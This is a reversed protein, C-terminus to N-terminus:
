DLEKLIKYLRSFLTGTFISELVDESMGEPLEGDDIYDLGTHWAAECIMIGSKDEITITAISAYDDLNQDWLEAFDSFYKTSPKSEDFGWEQDKDVGIIVRENM